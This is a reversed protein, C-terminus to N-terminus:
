HGSPFFRSFNNHFINKYCEGNDLVYTGVYGKSNVRRCDAKTVTVAEEVTQSVEAIHEKVPRRDGMILQNIQTANM